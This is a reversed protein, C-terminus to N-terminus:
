KDLLLQGTATKYTEASALKNVAGTESNHFPLMNVAWDKM